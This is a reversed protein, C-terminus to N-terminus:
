VKKPASKGFLESLEAECIKPSQLFFAFAPYATPLQTAYKIKIFKGKHSPPPYKQTAEQMFDNIESTKIRTKRNEYVALATELARFIRQKNLVSVFLIPVDNFPALKRQLKETFEKATNTEKAVLDWKNVLIVVGKMRKVALGFINMDQSEIGHQADIMLLCVDAEEVARIARIVSYFELNEQVKTKKRLGATDILLFEKGFKNYRSHISDRTTGAIDTVINRQEGLLANVLSSKGVNPQGVVAFKPTDDESAEEEPLYETIADLVEGTGSGTISSLFYSDEFGLSWFENADLLRTNNDVKNVALIVRKLSRRLLEAVTEDLDTIGTTVDTMFVIVDAEDIAILVQERIAAEFLDDSGPVFGGTDIVTFNKGNWECNGYLRDRTVGSINDVIAQKEGILRNYLTSKGVNPRGVIAVINAM